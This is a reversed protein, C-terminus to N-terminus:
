VPYVDWVVWQVLSLPLSYFVLVSLSHMSYRVGGLLYDVVTRSVREMDGMSLSLSISSLVSCYGVVVRSAHKWVLPSLPPSLM